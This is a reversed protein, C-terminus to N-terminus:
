VQSLMCEKDYAELMKERLGAVYVRDEEYIKEDESFDAIPINKHIDGIMKVHPLATKVTCVPTTGNAIADLCHLIKTTYETSDSIVIRGYNKVTGDQFTAVMEGGTLDLVANEFEYHASLQTKVEVAHSANFYVPVDGRVTLKLCCTDFNTIGNARYCEGQVLTAEAATDMADGLLFLMEQVYHACANAVPSDLIIKGDKTAVNGAYGGGRAYYAFNRPASFQCKASLPKGFISDLIDQKLTLLAPSFCRQYGIAIFKGTDKQAQIMAEVEAVTPAAPKECLVNTGHEVCFVAQERHLFSPTSILAMDARHESYFADLTKYAPISAEALEEQMPFASRTVIGEFTIEGAKHLNYLPELFRAGYGNAGVLLVRM